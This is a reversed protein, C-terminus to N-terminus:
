TQFYEAREIAYSRRLHWLAQIQIFLLKQGAHVFLYLVLSSVSYFSQRLFDSFFHTFLNFWIQAINRQKQAWFKGTKECKRSLIQMPSPIPGALGWQWPSSLPWHGRCALIFSLITIKPALEILKECMRSIPTTQFVFHIIERWWEHITSENICHVIIRAMRRNLLDNLIYIFINANSQGLFIIDKEEIWRSNWLPDIGIVYKQCNM